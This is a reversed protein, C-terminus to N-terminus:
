HSVFPLLAMIRSRKIAQALRRQHKACVGSEKKSIIRSFPDIFRKLVETNKYDIEKINNTCFYCQKM